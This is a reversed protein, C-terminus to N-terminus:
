ACFQGGICVSDFEVIQALIIVASVAERRRIADLLDDHLKMAGADYQKEQLLGELNEQVHRIVVNYLEALVPNHTARAVAAHFLMDDEIGPRVRAHCDKLASELVKLDEETRKVAALRAIEKELALRAELIQPLESEKLRNSVAVAFRDSAMVYTGDGPRAELMGMHILSQLAERITNHSVSFARALEAEAPIRDGVKWKGSRIMSEMATLVQRSLSVRVPKKLDMTKPKKM